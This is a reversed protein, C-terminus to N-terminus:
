LWRFAFRPRMLYPRSQTEWTRRYSSSRITTIGQDKHAPFNTCNVRSLILSKKSRIREKLKASLFELAYIRPEDSNENLDLDIELVFFGIWLAKGRKHLNGIEM